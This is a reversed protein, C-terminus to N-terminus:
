TGRGAVLVIQPFLYRLLALRTLDSGNMVGYNPASGGGSVRRHARTPPVSRHRIRRGAGSRDGAGGGSGGDADGQGVAAPKLPVHGDAAGSASVCVSVCLLGCILTLTQSSVLAPTLLQSGDLWVWSLLHLLFFFPKNGM